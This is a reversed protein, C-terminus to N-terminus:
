LVDRWDIDTFLKEPSFILIENEGSLIKETSGTDCGIHIGKVDKESM